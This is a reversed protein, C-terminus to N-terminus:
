KKLTSGVNRKECHVFRKYYHKMKVYEAKCVGCLIQNNNYCVPIITMSQWRGTGVGVNKRDCTFDCQKM